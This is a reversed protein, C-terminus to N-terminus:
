PLTITLCIPSYSGLSKLTRPFCNLSVVSLFCGLEWLCKLSEALDIFTVAARKIISAVLKVQKQRHRLDHLPYLTLLDPFLGKTHMEPNARVWCLHLPAERPTWMEAEGQLVLSVRWPFVTRMWDTQIPSDEKWRETPPVIGHEWHVWTSLVELWDSLGVPLLQPWQCGSEMQSLSGTGEHPKGAARPTDPPMTPLHTNDPWGLSAEWSTHCYQQHILDFQELVLVSCRPSPKPEMLPTSLLRYIKRRIFCDLFFASSAALKVSPLMLQLLFFNVYCLNGNLKLMDTWNLETAWDHGVRQSRM